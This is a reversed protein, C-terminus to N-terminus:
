RNSLKDALQVMQDAKKDTKSDWDRMTQDAWALADIILEIEKKTLTLNEMTIGKKTPTDYTYQESTRLLGKM